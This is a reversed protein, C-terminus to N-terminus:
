RTFDKAMYPSFVWKAVTACSIIQTRIMKDVLVIMMQPHSRWVTHLIRLVDIKGADSDSAWKILQSCFNWFNSNDRIVADFAYQRQSVFVKRRFVIVLRTSDPLLAVHTVSLSRLYICCPKCWHMSDPPATTKM